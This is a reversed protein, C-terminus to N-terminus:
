LECVQLTGDTQLYGRWARNMIQYPRRLQIPPLLTAGADALQQTILDREKNTDPHIMHTLQANHRIFALGIDQSAAGLWLM